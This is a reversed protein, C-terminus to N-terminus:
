FNFLGNSEVSFKDHSLSLAAAPTSAREREINHVTHNDKLEDKDLKYVKMGRTKRKLVGV